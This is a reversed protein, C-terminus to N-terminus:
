DEKKKGLLINDPKTSAGGFLEHIVAPGIGWDLIPM